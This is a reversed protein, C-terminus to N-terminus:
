QVIRYVITMTGSLAAPGQNLWVFVASGAAPTVSLLQMKGNAVNSQSYIAVQIQSTTAIASDTLTFTYKAGVATSLSETNIVGSLTNLTAAHVTSTAENKWTAGFTAAIQFPSAWVTQPVAGQIVGTDLPIQPANFSNATPEVQSFATNPVVGTLGNTYLGAALAVVPILVGLAALTWKTRKALSRGRALGELLKMVKEESLLGLGPCWGILPTRWQGFRM